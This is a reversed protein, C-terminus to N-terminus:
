IIVEPINDFRIKFLTVLNNDRANIINILWDSKVLSFGLLIYVKCCVFRICLSQKLLLTQCHCYTDDLWLHLDALIKLNCGHHDYNLRTLCCGHGYDETKKMDSERKSFLYLLLHYILDEFDYIVLKWIIELNWHQPIFVLNL